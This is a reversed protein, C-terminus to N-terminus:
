TAYTDTGPSDRGRGNAAPGSLRHWAPTRVPGAITVVVTNRLVCMSHTYTTRGALVLAAACDTRVSPM